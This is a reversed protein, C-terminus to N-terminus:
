ASLSPDFPLPARVFMHLGCNELDQKSGAIDNSLLRYLVDSNLLM